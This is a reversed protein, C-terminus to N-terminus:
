KGDWSWHPPDTVLKIVGYTAGVAHLDRNDGSRPTSAICFEKGNHNAIKLTGTWSITMDIAEGELHRSTLSAQHKMGFLRVMEAAARKSRQDDGHDWRIHVGARQPVAAPKITGHAVAWSYHMLYAREPSRRTSSVHVSAGAKWLAALFAEVKGRFAPELDQVQNSGPYKAQNAHWWAAGSLDSEDKKPGQARAASSGATLVLGVLAVQGAGWRMLTM